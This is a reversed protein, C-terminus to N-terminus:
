GECLYPYADKYELFSLYLESHILPQTRSGSRALSSASALGLLASM